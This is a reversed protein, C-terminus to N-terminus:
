YAEEPLRCNVLPLGKRDHVTVGRPSIEVTDLGCGVPTPAADFYQGTRVADCLHRAITWHAEPVDVGDGAQRWADKALHYTSALAAPEPQSVTTGEPLREMACGADSDVQYLM